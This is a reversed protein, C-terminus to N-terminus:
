KMQATEIFGKSGDKIAYGLVPYSTGNGYVRDWCTAGYSSGNHSSDNVGEVSDELVWTSENKWVGVNIKNNGLSGMTLTSETPIVTIEWDGTYAEDLSGAPAHASGTKYAYKPRICSTAYYGIHPVWKNASSKAVDLTINSGVVGYGDVICTEPATDSYSELYAYVLDLNMPDYAAIHIGGDKDAVIQCYEGANAMDGTFIKMPTAWGTGDTVGNRDTTPTTNYTYWLCRNTADYWVAVVVDDESAGEASVVAISVYEGADYVGKQAGYTVDSGAIMSVTDNRYPYSDGKIDYDMFSGLESTQTIKIFYDKGPHYVNNRTANDIWATDYYGGDTPDYSPFHGNVYYGSPVTFWWDSSGGGHDASTVAYETTNAVPNGDADCFSFTSNGFFTQDDPLTVHAYTFNNNYNDIYEIPVVTEISTVSNTTGAKFRIEENIDDYYALYLNTETGHVASALSPSKIRQKNFIRVGNADKQGISELRLSNDHGYSGNSYLDSTGWRSTMLKFKDASGSNIDGGAAVGYSYGLKDYTFGVSTFFDYSGMWYQASYDSNGMSFYLPGNVFAFGIMGNAPNIKMVPQEIMGSVPAAAESNMEWIDLVVDDTLLENNDGNPQQNYEADNDNSNNLTGVGNVTLSIGGSASAESFNMTTSDYPSDAKLGDFNFGYLTITEGINIPYHGRATRNYVSWNNSKLSSLSTKVKAIYPVVDMTYVAHNNFTRVYLTGAAVADDFNSRNIPSIHYGTGDYVYYWQAEDFEDSSTLLEYASDADDISSTNNGAYSIATGNYSPSGWDEAEVTVTVLEAAVTSLSSSDWEMTWSVRHGSVNDMSETLATFTMGTLSPSTFISDSNEDSAVLTREGSNWGPITVYIDKVRQNDRITGTMVVSGSVAPITRTGSGALEIHGKEISNGLLSNDEKSEWYFPEMLVTPAKTDGLSVDMAMTLKANQSDTGPTFEDTSDWITFTFTQDDGDIIVRDYPSSSSFFDEMSLLIETTDLIESSDGSASYDSGEVGTFARYPRSLTSGGNEVTYSYYLQGNGGVIEPIIKTAGKIDLVPAGGDNVTYDDTLAAKDYNGLDTGTTYVAFMDSVMEDDDVNNNGDDDTGYLVAALRPANNAVKGNEVVGTSYNGAEDFAVYHIEIPGDPINRSNINAEWIASGGQVTVSEVINDDDDNVVDTYYGNGGLTSGNSETLEHDVILAMAFMATTESQSPSGDITVVNGSVDTITYLAGGIKVMGGTHINNDAGTSLTMEALNSSRNVTLTKWYLGSDYTLGSIVLKNASDSKLFYTDYIAQNEALAGRRLFYLAVRSFGSQSAISSSNETVSSGLSYFGNSQVVTADIDFNVDNVDALVPAKNDYNVSIEKVATNAPEDGDEVYLTYSLAGFQDAESSGIKYKFEYGRTENASGSNWTKELSKSPEVGDITILNIGNEDEVSGELWWESKLWMGDSYEMSAVKTGTGAANDSYQYLYLPESSGIRPVASDITIICDESSDLSSMNGDSDLAYVRLAILNNAGGTGNFEGSANLTFSWSVTGSVKIGTKGATFTEVTYKSDLTSGNPLLASGASGETWTFGAAASFTPDIQIYVASVSENDEASGQIRIIGGQVTNGGFYTYSTGSVTIANTTSNYSSVTDIGTESGVSGFVNDGFAPDRESTYISDTGSSWGYATVTPYNLSVVPIDGQPDVKLVHYISEDSNGYEDTVKFHFYLPVIDTYLDGASHGDVANAYVVSDKNDGTEAIKLDSNLEVIYRKLSRDHTYGDTENIYGDFNIRWSSLTNLVKHAGYVTYDPDSYSDLPVTWDAPIESSGTVKYLIEGASGGSTGKLTVAGNVQEYDSHSDLNLTPPTNDVIVSRTTSATQGPKDTITFVLSLTDSELSAVDVPDANSLDTIYEQEDAPSSDVVWIEYGEERDVIQDNNLDLKYANIDGIGPAKVSVTGIGNTDMALIKLAFQSENGGFTMNATLNEGDTFDYNGTRDTIINLVEPLETDVTFTRSVASAVKGAKDIARFQITQGTGDSLGSLSLTWTETGTIGTSTWGASNLNYEVSAIGSGSNDTASGVVTYSSNSFIQSDVINVAPIQPLEADYFYVIEETSQRGVGDTVTLTLTNVGETAPTVGFSWETAGTVPTTITSNDDGDSISVSTIGNNDSATGSVTFGSIKYVSSGWSGGMSIDPDNRDVTFGRTLTSGINGARDEATLAITYSGENLSSIDISGYWSETGSMVRSLLESGDGISYLIRGIGTGADSATGQLSLSDQYYDAITNGIVPLDPVTSDIELSYTEKIYNGAGDTATITFVWDGDVIDGGSGPTYTLSFSGDTNVLDDDDDIWDAADGDPIILDQSDGDMSASIRVSALEVTDVALGAITFAENTLSGIDVSGSNQLTLSVFEPATDDCFFDVREYSFGNLGDSARVTLYLAGEQVHGEGDYNLLDVIQSWSYKIESIDTWTKSDNNIGPDDTSYQLIKVGAGNEDTVTGRITYVPNTVNEDDDPSTITLVPASFDIVINRVIESTKGVGDRATVTITYEGEDAVTVPILVSWDDDDDTGAMNDAGDSDYTVTLPVEEGGDKTYVATFSAISNADSVEGGLNIDTNRYVTASGPILSTTETLAPNSRDITYAAEASESVNGAVDSARVYLTHGGEALGSIEITRYWNSTGTVNNWNTGDISYQVLSLGSGDDSTTGSAVLERDQFVGSFANIVPVTPATADILLNRTLETIRGAADTATFVLSYSGDTSGDAVSPYTVSWSNDGSDVPIPIEESGNVNLILSALENVDSATGSFTVSSHAPHLNTMGIITEYLEPSTRDLYAQVGESTYSVPPKTLTGGPEGVDSATLRITYPTASQALSSINYTWSYETLGESTESITVNDTLPESLAGGTFTIQVSSRDIGDDDYVKGSLTTKSTDGILNEAAEGEEDLNSFSFTPNDESQRLTFDYVAGNIEGDSTMNGSGDTARVFVVYDGDALETSNIWVSWSYKAELPVWGDSAVDSVSPTGDDAILAYEVLAVQNEDSATGKFRILGNLGNARTDTGYVDTFEVVPATTDKILVLDKYSVQGTYDRARFKLSFDGESLENLSLTYTWEADKLDSGPYTVAADVYVSEGANEENNINLQVSAVSIGDTATGSIQVTDNVYAGQYSSTLPAHDGWAISTIEIEPAGSDVLFPIVSSTILGGNYLDNARLRIRHEGDAISEITYTWNITLDGDSDDTRIDTWVGSDDMEIQVTDLDVGDDDMVRGVLTPSGSFANDLAGIGEGSELNDFYLVPNDSSQNVALSLTKSIENGAEDLATLTVSLNNNDEYEATNINKYWYYYTSVNGDDPGGTLITNLDTSKDFENTVDDLAYNDAPNIGDSVTLIIHEMPSTNRVIGQIQVTGNVEKGNQPSLFSIEPDESDLFVQLTEVSNQGGLDVARFRIMHSGDADLTVDHSWSYVTLGEGNVTYDVIGDDENNDFTVITGYDGSDVKMQIESVGLNDTATGEVTFTGNVYQGSDPSNLTLIPGVSDIVFPIIASDASTGYIDEARIQLTFTGEGLSELEHTWSASTSNTSPREYIDQWAGGNLRIQMTDVAVGDDDTVKGFAELNDSLAPSDESPTNFEFQPLDEDQNIDLIIKGQRLLSIIEQTLEMDEGVEGERELLELEDVSFSNNSNVGLLDGYSYYYTNSNGALDTAVVQLRFTGTSDAYTESDFDFNWSNTMDELLKINSGTDVGGEIWNLPEDESDFLLIEVSAIRFKDAVEGRITVDKNFTDTLALPEKVLVVPANNDFYLVVTKETSKGSGDTILISIEKSGDSYNETPITVMWTKVANNITVSFDTKVSDIFVDISKVSGDDEWTGSLTLDGYVYSENAQDVDLTPATIDVNEGLGPSFMDCSTIGLVVTVSLAAIIKKFKSIGM